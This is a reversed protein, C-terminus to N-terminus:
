VGLNQPHSPAPPPSPHFRINSCQKRILLTPRIQVPQVYTRRMCALLQVLDAGAIGDRKYMEELMGKVVNETYRVGRWDEYDWMEVM